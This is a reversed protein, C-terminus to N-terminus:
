TVTIRTPCVVLENAANVNSQDKIGNVFRGEGLITEPDPKERPHFAGFISQGRRIWMGPGRLNQVLVGTTM